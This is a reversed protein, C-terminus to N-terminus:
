VSHPPRWGDASAPAPRGSGESAGAPFGRITPRWGVSEFTARADAAASEGKSALAARLSALGMPPPPTTQMPTPESVSVCREPRTKPKQPPASPTVPTVACLPALRRRKPTQYDEPVAEDRAKARLLDDVRESFSRRNGNMRIKCPSPLENAPADGSLSYGEFFGDESDSDFSARRRVSM